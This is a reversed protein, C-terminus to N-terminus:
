PWLAAPLTIEIFFLLRVRSRDVQLATGSGVASGRAGM